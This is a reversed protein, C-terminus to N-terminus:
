GGFPVLNTSRFEYWTRSKHHYSIRTGCPGALENGLESLVRPNIGDVGTAKEPNLQLLRKKIVDQCLVVDKLENVIGENFFNIPTPIDCKEDTLVSSFFDNLIDATKQDDYILEGDEELPGISEKM